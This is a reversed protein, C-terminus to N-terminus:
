VCIYDFYLYCVTNNDIHYVTDYPVNFWCFQGYKRWLEVSIEDHVYNSGDVGIGNFGGVAYYVGNDIPTFFVQKNYDHILTYGGFGTTDIIDTKEQM